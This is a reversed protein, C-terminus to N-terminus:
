KNHVTQSIEKVRSIIEDKDLDTFERDKYLIKGNVLVDRVDAGCASYVLQSYPNYMPVMHPTNMDIIILDAKKGPEIAGLMREMGIVRAGKCTAMELVTKARLMTPNLDAVKALKAATDMESFLDLNNNSACGDTGLGVTMGKELMDTVPAFGSGLKMNSEACHAVKVDRKAMTEIEEEDLYIAHAAILDSGLIGLDDLYFVPRKKERKQIEEVEERTESLHTQLPLDYKLSIEHAKSLTSSSCTIPSHCFIGPTILDSYSKWREIFSHAIDINKEPSPVGPAPFDLVGQAVIGRMGSKNIARAMDDAFFYGDVITTTGSAIMELTALLTTWYVTNPNMHRAEAPFIHDFLWAKLPFDDAWGRFLTMPSHGHVNILGPLIVTNEAHIIVKAKPIPSENKSSIAKIKDGKIIIRANFLPDEGDVMTLLIGGEIIIDFAEEKESMKKNYFSNVIKYM